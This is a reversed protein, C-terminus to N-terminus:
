YHSLGLPRGTPQNSLNPASVETHTALHESPRSPMLITTSSGEANGPFPASSAEEIVPCGWNEEEMSTDLGSTEDFHTAQPPSQHPESDPVGVNRSRGVLYRLYDPGRRSRGRERPMIGTNLACLQLHPFLFWLQARRYKGLPSALRVLLARFLFMVLFGSLRISIITNWRMLPATVVSTVDDETTRKRMLSSSMRFWHVQIRM